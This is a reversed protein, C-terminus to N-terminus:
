AIMIMMMASVVSSTDVGEEMNYDKSSQLLLLYLDRIFIQM